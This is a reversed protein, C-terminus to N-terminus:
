ETKLLSGTAAAGVAHAARRPADWGARGRREWNGCSHLLGKAYPPCPWAMALNARKAFVGTLFEHKIANLLRQLCLDKYSSSM